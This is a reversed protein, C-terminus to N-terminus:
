FKRKERNLLPIDFDVNPLRCCVLEKFVDLMSLKLKLVGFKDLYIRFSEFRNM